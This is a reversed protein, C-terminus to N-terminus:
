SLVWRDSRRSDLTPDSVGVVTELRTMCSCSECHYGSRGKLERRDDAFCCEKEEGIDIERSLFISKRLDEFKRAEDTNLIVNSTFVSEICKVPM